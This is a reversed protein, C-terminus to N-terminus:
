LHGVPEPHLTTEANPAIHYKAMKRYLTMRSWLLKKAAESKNWKASFLAALLTEREDQLLAANGEILGRLHRPLHEVGIKPPLDRLFLNEVLNKLERINGPWGYAQLCALSEDSFVPAPTGMRNSFDSCYHRLLFPIDYQRDRLPPLHIRAVNLRFFL